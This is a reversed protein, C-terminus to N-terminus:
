PLNGSSDPGVPTEPSPLNPVLYMLKEYEAMVEEAERKLETTKADVEKMEALKAQKQEPALKPIEKSAANKQAQLKELDGLIGRRQSDLELLKDLDLNVRKNKIAEKVKDANERIFKIDLM